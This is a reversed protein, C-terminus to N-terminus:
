AYLAGKPERSARAEYVLHAILFLCAITIKGSKEIPAFALIAAPYKLLSVWTVYVTTHFLCYYLGSVILFVAYPLVPYDITVLVFGAFVLLGAAILALSTRASGAHYFRADGCAQEYKTSALDDVIRLGLAAALTFLFIGFYSGFAPGGMMAVALSVYVWTRFRLRRLIYEVVSFPSAMELPPM